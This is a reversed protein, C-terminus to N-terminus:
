SPTLGKSVKGATDGMELLQEYTMNDVDPNLPDLELSEQLAVTLLREEDAL